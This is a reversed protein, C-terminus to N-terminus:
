RNTGTDTQRGSWWCSQIPGKHRVTLSTSEICTKCIGRESAELLETQRLKAYAKQIYGQMTEKVHSQNSKSVLPVWCATQFAVRRILHAGKNIIWNSQHM